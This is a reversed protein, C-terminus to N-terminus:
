DLISRHDPRLFDDEVSRGCVSPQVENEVDHEGEHVVKHQVENEVAHEVENDVAHEVENDVAHEVAHEVEHVAILNSFVRAKSMSKMDLCTTNIVFLQSKFM